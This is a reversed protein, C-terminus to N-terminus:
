NNWRCCTRGDIVLVLRSNLAQLRTCPFSCFSFQIKRSTIPPLMRKHFFELLRSPDGGSAGWVGTVVAWRSVFVWWSSGRGEGEVPGDPGEIM